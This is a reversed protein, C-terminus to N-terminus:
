RDGRRDQHAAEAAALRAELEDARARQAEAERSAEAAQRRAVKARDNAEEVRKSAEEARKSAEEARKSAEEARERGLPLPQGEGDIWRLFPGDFLHVRGPRIGLKLGTGFVEYDGGADARMPVFQRTEPDLEFAEFETSHPDFIFYQPLRWVKSYIRKKEGHDVARTSDSTLEIVVNPLQGNEEWAVWSKREKRETDLVVFVDPGRFDHGKIQLESFYVFMNGGVYFDNREAWADELSDILVQMQARHRPTDMPEGDEAPLQDQGPPPVPASPDIAM